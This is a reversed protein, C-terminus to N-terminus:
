AFFDAITKAFSKHDSDPAVIQVELGSENVANATTTGICAIAADALLVRLDSDSFIQKFNNFASPSAFTICDIAGGALLAKLKGTEPARPLITRYAVVDDVVAGAQRLKEPLVERAIESRPFLFHLGTFNNTGIYNQLEAFLGEANSVSPLVDVHIQAM